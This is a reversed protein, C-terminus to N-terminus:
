IMNKVAQIFNCNNTKMYFDIADGHEGCGFCNFKNNKINFSPTKEEHFPCLGTGRRLQGDYMDEIPSEKARAIMEDTIIVGTPRVKHQQIKVIRNIVNLLPAIRLKIIEDRVWGKGTGEEDIIAQINDACASKIDDLHDSFISLAQNLQLTEGKMKKGNLNGTM